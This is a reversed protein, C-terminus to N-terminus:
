LDDDVDGVLPIQVRGHVPMPQPQLVAVVPHRVLGLRGDRDAPGEGVPDLEGVGAQVPVVGVDALVVGLLQAQVAVDHDGRGLGAVPWRGVAVQDQRQIVQQHLVALDGREAAALGAIRAM